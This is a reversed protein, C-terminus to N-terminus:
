RNLYGGAWLATETLAISNWVAHMVFALLVSGSRWRAYGLLLGGVFIMVVYFLEYQTHILAWVLASFIIAGWPGLRSEALGRYLFGRFFLEESLPAAIAIALWYLPLVRATTYTERLFDPILPRGSLWTVGDMLAVFLLTLALWRLWSGRAPSQGGLYATVPLGQRAYAFLLTLGVIVPATVLTAIALLFGNSAILGAQEPDALDAVGADGSIVLYAVVTITQLVTFAVAILAAFGLTAWPGWVGPRPPNMPDARVSM